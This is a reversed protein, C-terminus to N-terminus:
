RGLESPSSPRGRRKLYSPAAVTVIRTDLLKRAVLSSTGPEGFRVALDFGGTVLDGLRDLTLLELRRDPHNDLFAGLRPPSLQRTSGRPVGYLRM